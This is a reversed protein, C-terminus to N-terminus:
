MLHPSTLSETSPNTLYIKPIWCKVMHGSSTKVTKQVGGNSGTPRSGRRPFHPGDMHKPEFHTYSGGTPFGHRHPFHNDRHPRPGYGFRRPLFSNDRSGFGNSHHNPGHFFQSAVRSPTRPLFNTFENHYSNRAYDLHMKEIRKHRFCFEDLHDAHGCFMCVFVEERLKPTEKRVERKPNFSTKSNSLYHTKTSKITEEEKHYNSTPVFKPASMEGEDECREVRVSLKYTSKTASEEVQSLDDEIMKESVITKELHSTLYAVEQKLETNYKTALFLKGKLSGCMECPPSLVIYHSSHNIQHKLDKIEVASAELDSRLLPCSTCAGLLLSHAKLERLELKAGKLQSAVQSHV